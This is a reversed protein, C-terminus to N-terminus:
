GRILWRQGDGMKAVLATPSGRRGGTAKVLTEFIKIGGDSCEAIELVLKGTRQSAVPRLEVWAPLARPLAQNSPGLM